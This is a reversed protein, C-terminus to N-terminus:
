RRAPRRRAPADRREGLVHQRVVAGVEVVRLGPMLLEVSAGDQDGAAAGAHAPREREREGLSARRDGDAAAAGLRDLLGGLQAAREADPRERRLDVHAIGLADLGPHGLRRTASPGGRMSMLLAAPLKRACAMSREGFPQRATM